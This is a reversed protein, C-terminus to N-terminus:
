TSGELLVGRFQLCRGLVSMKRAGVVVKVYIEVESIVFFSGKKQGMPIRLLYVYYTYLGPNDIKLEAGAM